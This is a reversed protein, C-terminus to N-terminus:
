FGGRYFSGDQFILVGNRCDAEGENMYGEYYHGESFYVKGKGHPIKDKWEGQYYIQKRHILFPPLEV